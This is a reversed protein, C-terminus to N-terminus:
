LAVISDYITQFCSLHVLLLGIFVLWDTHVLFGPALFDSQLNESVHSTLCLVATQLNHAASAFLLAIFVPLTNHGCQLANHDNLFVLLDYFGKLM